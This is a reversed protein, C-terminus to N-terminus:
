GENPNRIASTAKQATLVRIPRFPGIGSVPKWYKASCRSLRTIASPTNTGSAMPSGRTPKVRRTSSLRRSRHNDTM